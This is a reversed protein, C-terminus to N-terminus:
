KRAKVLDFQLGASGEGRGISRTRGLWCHTSGDIWRAYKWARTLVIGSRPLEEEHLAKSGLEAAGLVQSFVPKSTVLKLSVDRPAVGPATPLAQPILPYWNPPAPTALQYELIPRDGTAEFSAARAFAPASLPREEAREESGFDGEVRQEIAWALNAMEDRTLRVEELPAGRKESALTPALFFLDSASGLGGSPSSLRFLRWSGPATEDSAPVSLTEGFNNKVEIHTLQCLSGVALELPVVFFDNGYVLAFEALVLRGLDEPATDIAGFDLTGDEFEWLRASPMGAFRAPTPLLSVDFPDGHRSRPARISMADFAYWDLTGGTSAASLVTDSRPGSSDLPSRVQFRYSLTEPEWAVAGPASAYRSRFWAGFSALAATLQAEEDATLGLPRPLRTNADLADFLKKGDPVLRTVPAARRESAPAAATIPFDEVYATLLKQALGEGLLRLFFLGAAVRVQTTVPAPEREVIVELPVGVSLQTTRGAAVYSEVKSTTGHVRVSTPSGADEGMFEGFQWQRGLIWLPDQIRAALGPLTASRTRPEIRNWSTISPM